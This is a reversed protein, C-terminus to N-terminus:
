RGDLSTTSEEPRIWTTAILTLSPMTSNSGSPLNSPKRAAPLTLALGMSTMQFFSDVWACSSRIDSKTGMSYLLTDRSSSSKIKAVEAAMSPFTTTESSRLPLPVSCPASTRRSFMSPLSMRRRLPKPGGDPSRSNTPSVSLM